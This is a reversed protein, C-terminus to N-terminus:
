GNLTTNTELEINKKQCELLEIRLQAIEKQLAEIEASDKQYNIYDSSQKILFEHSNTTGINPIDFFLQNYLEFFEVVSPQSSLAEQITVQDLQTFSTDIVKQYQSKNKVSKNLKIEEKSM